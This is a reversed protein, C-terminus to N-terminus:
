RPIVKWYYRCPHLLANVRCGAATVGEARVTCAPYDVQVSYSEKSLMEGKRLSDSFM